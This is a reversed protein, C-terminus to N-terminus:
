SPAGTLRAVAEPRPERAASLEGACEALFAVSHRAELFAQTRLIRSLWRENTHVGACYTQELAASLRAAARDRSPAWAIVKGLLSDYIPPVDDGTAFGADVRISEGSPWQLLRLRGASPLFDREPDEACM